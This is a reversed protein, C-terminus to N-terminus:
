QKVRKRLSEFYKEVVLCIYDYINQSMSDSDAMMMSPVGEPKEFFSFFSDFDNFSELFLCQESQFFIRFNKECPIHMNEM